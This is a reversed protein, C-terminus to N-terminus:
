NALQNICAMYTCPIRMANRAHAYVVLACDMSQGRLTRIWSKRLATWPNRLYMSQAWCIYLVVVIVYFHFYLVNLIVLLVILIVLM